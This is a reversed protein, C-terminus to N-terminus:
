YYSFAVRQIPYFDTKFKCSGEEAMWLEWFTYAGTSSNKAYSLMFGAHSEGKAEEEFKGEVKHLLNLPIELIPLCDKAQLQFADGQHAWYVKASVNLNLSERIPCKISWGLKVKIAESYPSTELLAHYLSPEKILDDTLRDSM